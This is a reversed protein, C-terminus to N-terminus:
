FPKTPLYKGDPIIVARSGSEPDEVKKIDLKFSVASIIGDGFRGHALAKLTSGYVQLTEYSRYITPDSPVGGLISGYLPVSRLLLVVDDDSGPQVVIKCAMTESLAYQGLLAVIVSTLALGAGDALDQWSLGLRTKNLAVIEALQQCANPSM